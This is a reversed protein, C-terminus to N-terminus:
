LWGFGSCISGHHSAAAPVPHDRCIRRPGTGALRPMIRPLGLVVNWRCDDAPAHGRFPTESVVTAHGLIGIAIGPAGPIKPSSALVRPMRRNRNANFGYLSPRVDRRRPARSRAIKEM